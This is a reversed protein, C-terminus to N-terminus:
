NEEVSMLKKKPLMNDFKICEIDNLILRVICIYIHDFRTSGSSTHSACCFSSNNDKCYFHVSGTLLVSFILYAAWSDACQLLKFLHGMQTKLAAPPIAHWLTILSQINVVFLLLVHAVTGCSLKMIVSDTDTVSKKKDSVDVPRPTTRALQRM